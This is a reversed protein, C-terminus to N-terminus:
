KQQQRVEETLSCVSLKSVLGYILFLKQVFYKRLCGLIGTNENLKLINM